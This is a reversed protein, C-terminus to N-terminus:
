ANRRQGGLSRQERRASNNGARIVGGNIITGGHYSNSASLTLTWLRGNLTGSGTLNGALSINGGTTDVTASGGSGTLNLSMALVM